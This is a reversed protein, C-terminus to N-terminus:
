HKPLLKSFAIHLGWALLSSILLCTLQLPFRFAGSAYPLMLRWVNEQVCYFELSIRGFFELTTLIPKQIRSLHTCGEILLLMLFTLGPTIPLNYLADSVPVIDPISDIHFLANLLLGALMMPLSLLLMSRRCRIGTRAYHGWLFGLLFVPARWYAGFLDKRLFPALALGFVLVACIALLTVITKNRAPAFVRFYYFPALAYFLLIVPIFWPCCFLNEFFPSYLLAIKSFSIFDLKLYWAIFVCTLLYIPYVRLVRRLMYKGWSFGEKAFSYTLSFASLLLFVDVGIYSQRWFHYGLASLIPIGSFLRDGIHSYFILLASLGMLAGRHRSIKSYQM